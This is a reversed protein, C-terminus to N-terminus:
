RGHRRERWLNGLRTRKDEYCRDAILKLREIDNIARVDDEDDTPKRYHLCQSRERYAVEAADRLKRMVNDDAFMRSDFMFGRKFAQLNGKSDTVIMEADGTDQVDGISLAPGGRGEDVLALHDTFRVNSQVADFQEGEPTTGPCVNITGVHAFSLQRAEGSRIVDGGTIWGGDWRYTGWKSLSTAGAVANALDDHGHDPHTITERGAPSVRRELSVIQSVLRENRPLMVKGSNLLPLLDRFLESKTNKALDYIIGHNRFLERPFEGAYRDGTVHMIRYSKLLTAFDEVVQEPSFRPRVERVADIIVTNGLLKPDTLATRMSVTPKM